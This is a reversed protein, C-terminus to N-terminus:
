VLEPSLEISHFEAFCNKSNNCCLNVGCHSCTSTPRSDIKKKSCVQCRGKPVNFKPFHVGVNTLRVTEPISYNLKRRKTILKKQSFSLLGRAAESRFDLQSIPCGTEEKYIVFANVIAMDLIGFFLRHWWKINKRHIGYIQRHMDHTDVGGMHNNYCKVVAPCSVASKTGNKNKRMVQTTNIGHYNSILHVAKTDKWKFVTIGDATSRYDFEGRKLKNDELLSPFDKRSPRITGCAFIKKAKLVEMLPISSFFNDFCLKHNNESLNSSLKMIVSGGLGLEKKKNDDNKGTYVEFKHVYGQDDALCWLKFGRKIPKMPNYQKLSSRGKFKIMSEDIALYEPPTRKLEFEKNMYKVLPRIKYIKDKPAYNMKSNDNLHLNRLIQLFRDRGMAEKIATVGLDKSERWYSAITHMPNYGMVINIGLFVYMEDESVKVPKNKQVSNLNTEYTISEIIESDLFLMVADLPNKLNFSKKISPKIFDIGPTREEKKRWKRKTQMNSVNHLPSPPNSSEVVFTQLSDNNELTITAIDNDEYDEMLRDVINICRDVEFDDDSEEIDTYDNDDSPFPEDLLAQIESENLSRKTM